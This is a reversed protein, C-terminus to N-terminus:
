KKKGTNRIIYQHYETVWIPFSALAYASIAATYRTSKIINTKGIKLAPYCIQYVFMKNYSWRWQEPPSFALVINDLSHQFHLFGMHTVSIYHIFLIISQLYVYFNFLSHFYVYSSLQLTSLYLFVSPPPFPWVLNSPFKHKKYFNNTHEGAYPFGYLSYYELCSNNLADFLTTM